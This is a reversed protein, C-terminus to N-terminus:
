RKEASKNLVSKGVVVVPSVLVSTQHGKTLDSFVEIVNLLYSRHDWYDNHVKLVRIGLDAISSKMANPLHGVIHCFIELFVEVLLDQWSKSLHQVVGHWSDLGMSASGECVEELTSGLVDNDVVHSSDERLEEVQDLSADRDNLFISNGSKGGQSLSGLFLERAVEILAESEEALVKSTEILDLVLLELSLDNLCYGDNRCRNALFLEARVSGSDNACHKIDLNLLEIRLVWLSSVKQTGPM